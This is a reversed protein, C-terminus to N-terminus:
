TDGLADKGKGMTQLFGTTPHSEWPSVDGLKLGEQDLHVLSLLNNGLVLFESWVTEKSVAGYSAYGLDTQSQPNPNLSTKQCNM